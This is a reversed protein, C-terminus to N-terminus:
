GGIGGLLEESNRKVFPGAHETRGHDQVVYGMAEIQEKTKRPAIGGVIGDVNSCSGCPFAYRYPYGGIEKTAFIFGEKGCDDCWGGHGYIYIMKDPNDTKWINFAKYVEKPFNTPPSSSKILFDYISASCEDPIRHLTKEWAKKSEPSPPKRNFYIWVENVLKNLPEYKM